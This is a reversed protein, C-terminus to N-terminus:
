ARRSGILAGGHLCPLELIALPLRMTVTLLRGARSTRHAAARV